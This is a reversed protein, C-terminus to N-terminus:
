KTSLPRFIGLPSAFLGDDGLFPLARPASLGTHNQFGLKSGRAQAKAPAGSRPHGGLLGRTSPRTGALGYEGTQHWHSGPLATM